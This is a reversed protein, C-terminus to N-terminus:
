KKVACKKEALDGSVALIAIAVLFPNTNAYFMAAFIAMTLRPMALWGLWALVGFHVSTACLMTLRPFFAAFFLFFITHHDWFSM